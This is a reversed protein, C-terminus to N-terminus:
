RDHSQQVMLEELQRVQERLQIVEDRLSELEDAGPLLRNRQALSNLARVINANLETQRYIMPDLYSRVENHLRTHLVDWVRGIAYRSPSLHLPEYVSDWRQNLRDLAEALERDAQLGRREAIQRRVQRM